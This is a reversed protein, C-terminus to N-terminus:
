LTIRRMKSIVILITDFATHGTNSFNLLSNRFPTRSLLSYYSPNSISHPIVVSFNIDYSSYRVLNSENIAEETHSDIPRIDDIIKAKAVILLIMDAIPKKKSFQSTRIEDIMGEYDDNDQLYIYESIHVQNKKSEIVTKPKWALFYKVDPDEFIPCPLGMKKFVLGNLHQKFELFSVNIDLSIAKPNPLQKENQIVTIRSSIKPLLEPSPSRTDSWAIEANTATSNNTEMDTERELCNFAM